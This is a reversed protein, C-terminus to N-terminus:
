KKPKCQNSVQQPDGVIVIATRENAKRLPIIAEPERMLGGEDIMIHTFNVSSSYIKHSTVCTSVILLKSSQKPKLEENLDKANIYYPKLHHKHRGYEILLHISIDDMQNLSRAKGYSLLTSLFNEASERQQTCVLIRAHQNSLILLTAVTLVYTKGTGFPGDILIPFYKQPHLLITDLAVIQNRDLILDLGYFQKVNVFPLGDAMIRRAVTSPIEEVSHKLTSFYSSKLHFHVHVRFESAGRRLAKIKQTGDKDFALYLKEATSKYNNRLIFARCIAAQTEIRKLEIGKRPETEVAQTVFEIQFDKMGNIYGYQHYKSDDAQATPICTNSLM